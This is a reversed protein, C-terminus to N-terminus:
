IGIQDVAQVEQHCSRALFKSTQQVGAAALSIEAVIPYFSAPQSTAQNLDHGPMSTWYVTPAVNRIKSPLVEALDTPTIRNTSASCMFDKLFSLSSTEQFHKAAHMREM